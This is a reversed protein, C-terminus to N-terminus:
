PLAVSRRGGDRRGQLDGQRGRPQPDLDNQTQMHLRARPVQPVGQSHRDRNHHGALNVATQESQAKRPLTGVALRQLEALCEELSLFPFGSKRGRRYANQPM